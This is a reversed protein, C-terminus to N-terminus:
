IIGDEHLKSKIFTEVDNILDPFRHAMLKDSFKIVMNENKTKFIKCLPKGQLSFIVRFVTNKSQSREKINDEEGNFLYNLIEESTLGEKKMEMSKQVLTGEGDSYKSINKVLELGSKLSLMKPGGLASILEKPIKSLSITKNLWSRTIGLKESLEGQSRFIGSDIWFKYALATEYPSMEERGSNEADMFLLADADDLDAELIKIGCDMSSCVYHRRSGYIIEHSYQSDNKLPRALVPVLQGQAKIKEKLDNTNEENLFDQMRINGKWIRCKKPDILKAIFKVKKGSPLEFILTEGIRDATGKTEKNLNLSIQDGTKPLQDIFKAIATKTRTKEM